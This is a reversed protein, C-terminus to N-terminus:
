WDGATRITYLRNWCHGADIGSQQFTMQLFKHVKECAIVGWGAEPAILAAVAHGSWYGTKRRHCM